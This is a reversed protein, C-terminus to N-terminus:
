DNDTDQQGDKEWADRDPQEADYREHQRIEEEVWEYRDHYLRKGAEEVTLELQLQHRDLHPWIWHFVPDCVWIHWFAGVDDGFWDSIPAYYKPDDKDWHGKIRTVLRPLPVYGLGHCLWGQWEWLWDLLAWYWVDDSCDVIVRVDEGKWGKMATNWRRVRFRAKKGAWHLANEAFSAARDLLTPKRMGHEGTAGAEGRLVQMDRGSDQQGETHPHAAPEHRVQPVFSHEHTQKSEM